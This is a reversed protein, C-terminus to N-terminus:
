SQLRNGNSRHGFAQPALEQPNESYSKFLRICMKDTFQLQKRWPEILGYLLFLYVVPDEKKEELLFGIMVAYQRLHPLAQFSPENVLKIAKDRIPKIQPQDERLLKLFSFAEIYVSRGFFGQSKYTVYYNRNPEASFRERKTTANEHEALWKKKFSPFERLLKTNAAVTQQDGLAIATSKSESLLDRFSQYESTIPQRTYYAIRNIKILTKDSMLSAAVYNYFWSQSYRLVQPSPMFIYHLSPTQDSFIKSYIPVSFSYHFLQFCNDRLLEKLYLLCFTACGRATRQPQNLKLLDDVSMKLFNPLLSKDSYVCFSSLWDSAHLEPFEYVKISQDEWLRPWHLPKIIRDKMIIFAEIHDGSYASREENTFLYGVAKDSRLTRQISKMEHMAQFRNLCIDWRKIKLLTIVVKFFSSCFVFAPQCHLPRDKNQHFYTYLRSNLRMLQFKNLSIVQNNEDIFSLEDLIKRIEKNDSDSLKCLPMTDLSSVQITENVIENVCASLNKKNVDAQWYYAIFIVYMVDLCHMMDSLHTRMREYIDIMQHILQQGYLTEGNIAIHIGYKTKYEAAASHLHRLDLSKVNNRLDPNAMFASIKATSKRDQM